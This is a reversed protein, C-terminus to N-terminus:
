HLAPVAEGTLVTFFIFSFFISHKSNEVGPV